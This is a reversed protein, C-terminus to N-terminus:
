GRENVAPLLLAALVGNSEIPAKPPDHALLFRMEANFVCPNATETPIGERGVM